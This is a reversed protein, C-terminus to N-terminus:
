FIRRALGAFENEHAMRKAAAQDQFDEVKHEVM